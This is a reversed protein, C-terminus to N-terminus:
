PPIHEYLTKRMLSKMSSLLETTGEETTADFTSVLETSIDLGLRGIAASWAEKKLVTMWASLHGWVLSIICWPLCEATKNLAAMADSSM